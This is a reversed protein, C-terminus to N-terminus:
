QIETICGFAKLRSMLSCPSFRLRGSSEERVGLGPCYGAVSSPVDRATSLFHITFPGAKVARLGQHPSYSHQGTPTTSFEKAIHKVQSTNGSAMQFLCRRATM